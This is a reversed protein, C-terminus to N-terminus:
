FAACRTSRLVDLSSIYRTWRKLAPRRVHGRDLLCERAFYTHADHMRYTGQAPRIISWRELVDVVGGASAEDETSPPRDDLLVAADKLSFAHGDPMVALSLYFRQVREDDSEIARDEFGGQLIAKRRKAPTNEASDNDPDHGVKDMETRITSAADSWSEPDHRGRVTSWRGVFAVDM